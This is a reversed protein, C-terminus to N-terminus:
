AAAAFELGVSLARAALKAGDGFWAGEVRADPSRGREHTIFETAANYAGWLTGRVGPLDSGRGAEFLPAVANVIRPAATENDAQGPGAFVERVYRKLQADGCPVGALAVLSAFTERFQGRAVEVIERLGELAVVAHARHQIRVLCSAKDDLAGSLTNSCVVRVLTLGCRIALGHNHAHALLVHQQVEDGAVVDGAVDKVRALIWIRQGGRLSGAAEIEVAGSEVLPQFWRFADRNQLPVFDPGVVGLLADDSERVTAFHDVARGDEVLALPALKVGWDLGALKIADEVSPPNDLVTGLGHWAPKGVFLASEIEHSM